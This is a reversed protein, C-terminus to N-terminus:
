GRLSVLDFSVTTVDGTSMTAVNMPNYPGGDPGNLAAGTDDECRLTAGGQSLTLSVASAKADECWIHLALSVDSAPTVTYAASNTGDVPGVPNIDSPHITLVNIRGLDTPGAFTVNITVQSGDVTIWNESM